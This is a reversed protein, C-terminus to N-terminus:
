EKLEFCMLDKSGNEPVARKVTSMLGDLGILYYGYTGTPKDCEALILDNSFGNGLRTGIVSKGEIEYEKFNMLPAYFYIELAFNSDKYFNCLSNTKCDITYISNKGNTSSNSISSDSKSKCNTTTFIFLSMLIISMVNRASVIKM